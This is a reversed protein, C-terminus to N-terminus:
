DTGAIRMVIAGSKLMQDDSGSVEAVLSTRRRTNVTISGHGVGRLAAVISGLTCSGILLTLASLFICGVFDVIKELM